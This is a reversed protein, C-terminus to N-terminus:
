GETMAERLSTTQLNTDGVTNLANIKDFLYMVVKNSLEGADVAGSGKTPAEPPASEVGLEVTLLRGYGSKPTGEIDGTRVDVDYSEANVEDEIRAVEGGTLESIQWESGGYDDVARELADAEGRLEVLREEYENYTQRYEDTVEAFSDFKEDIEALCDDRAQEVEPIKEDRLEDVRDEFDIAKTRTAAM